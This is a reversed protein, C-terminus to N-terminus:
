GEGRMLDLMETTTRARPSMAAECFVPSVLDIGLLGLSCSVM